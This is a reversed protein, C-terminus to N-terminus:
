DLYEFFGTVVRKVGSTTRAVEVADAGEQRKVLGMLFVVGDETFVKIHNTNLKGSDLIRAKVKSTIYGDNSRTGLTSTPGVVIENFVNRVNPVTKVIREIDQKTKADPVEGTILAQRNFSVVNIHVNSGSFKEGVRNEAKLEIGQDELQTATTRRDDVSSAGLVVGAGVVVPCGSLLPTLATVLLLSALTRRSFAKKM